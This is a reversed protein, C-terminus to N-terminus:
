NPKGFMVIANARQRKRVGGMLIWCSRCAHEMQKHFVRITRRHRKFNATRYRQENRKERSTRRRLWAMFQGRRLGRRQRDDLSRRSWRRGLRSWRRSRRDCRRDCRGDDRRRDNRRGRTGRINRASAATTALRLRLVRAKVFRFAVAQVLDYRLVFDGRFAANTGHSTTRQANTIM